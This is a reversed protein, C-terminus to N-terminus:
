LTILGARVARRVAETRTSVGLKSFISSLHFKVTHDSIGLRAATTKNPLGQSVLELVERERATLGEIPAEDEEVDHDSGTPMVSFGSAAAAIAAALDPAATGPAVIAWGGLGLDRLMTAVQRSGTIVVLAAAPRERGIGALEEVFIDNALLVVDAREDDPLEAPTAVQRAVHLGVAEFAERLQRTVPLNGVVAIDVAPAM